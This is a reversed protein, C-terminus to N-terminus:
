CSLCMSPECFCDRRDDCVHTLGGVMQATCRKVIKVQVKDGCMVMCDDLEGTEENPQAQYAGYTGAIDVLARLRELQTAHTEARRIEESAVMRSQMKEQIQEFQQTTM